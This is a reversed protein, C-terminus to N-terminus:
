CNETKEESFLLKATFCFFGRHIGVTDFLFESGTHSRWNRNGTVHEDM